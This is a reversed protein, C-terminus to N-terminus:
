QCTEPLTLSIKHLGRSAAHCDPQARSMNTPCTDRSIPIYCSVPSVCKVCAESDAKESLDFNKSVLEFPERSNGKRIEPLAEGEGLQRIVTGSVPSSTEDNVNARKGPKRKTGGSSVLKTKKETSVFRESTEEYGRKKGGGDVGTFHGPSRLQALPFPPKPINPLLGHPKLSMDLGAPLDPSMPGPGPPGMNRLNFPNLYYRFPNFTSQFAALRSYFSDASEKALPSYKPIMYNDLGLGTGFGLGLDM